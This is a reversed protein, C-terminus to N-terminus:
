AAQKEDEVYTRRGGPLVYRRKVPFKNVIYYGGAETVHDFGQTKDPVGNDYAQKELAETYVPCATTNIKYRREGKDNLLMAQMALVRDRVAPNAKPVDIRLGNQKLITIDSESWNKSSTNNGSADPYVTVMNGESVYNDRLMRAMTPTDLVKVLEAVARPENGRMVHVVAHMNQVNFDMGVHVHEGPLVLDDCHSLERDFNSYVSGSTLNTFLGKLYAAILQPPYSAMLSPIYDDPLNAANDYTSAHVLGYLEELSKNERLAQVFVAYTFRFGEPTTTVDVGNRLDDRKIRMRAIIKRWAMEAHKHKLTDLEDIHAHGIKFGVIGEPADISRCITTGRYRAGRYFDVEKNSTSIKVKFGWDHAVEEITPYYIDKIQRYSPGFYGSPVGPMEWHHQCTASAGAWSKGAGYGACMARYKRKLALFRAQPVNLKPAVVQEPM